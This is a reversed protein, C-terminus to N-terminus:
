RAGGASFHNVQNGWADWGPRVERAFLDARPVDGFAIEAHRYAEDPKRSHERRPAMIVSPLAKIVPPNGRKALIFPEHAGRLVFGVGPRIKKGDKTTKVWVGSTSFTFGWDDLVDLSQRYMTSLSWLWLWCDPAALDAVPMARIEEISMCAYHAQPSRGAGKMSRVRFNWPNDTMILGYSRARLGRFFYSM